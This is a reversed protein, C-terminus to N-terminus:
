INDEDLASSYANLDFDAIARVMEIAEHADYYRVAADWHPLATDAYRNIGGGALERLLAAACAKIREARAYHVARERENAYDDRGQQRDLATARFNDPYPM